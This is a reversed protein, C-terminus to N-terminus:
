PQFAIWFAPGSIEANPSEQDASAPAPEPGPLWLTLSIVAMGVLIVAAMVLHDPLDELGISDIM